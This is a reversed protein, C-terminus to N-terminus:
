LPGGYKKPFVPFGNNLKTRSEGLSIKGYGNLSSLVVAGCDLTARDAKCIRWDETAMALLLSKFITPSVQAM